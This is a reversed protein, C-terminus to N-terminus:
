ADAPAHQEETLLRRFLEITERSPPNGKQSEYYRTFMEFPGLNALTEREDATLDAGKVRVVDVASPLEARVAQAVDAVPTDVDVFVRFWASDNLERYQALDDLGVGKSPSGIDILSRGATIPLPTITAPQRAHVEVLNVSKDQEREGFDLQLLSGSYAAKTGCRVEQPKHVHGLAIYQAAVPLADAPVGYIGWAMHLEREGGGTGITANDVLLHAVSISIADREFGESLTRLAARVRESYQVLPAGPEDQLQAFDVIDRENLWPLAAVIAVEKKGKSPV